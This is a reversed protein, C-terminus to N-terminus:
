IKELHRPEVYTVDEGLENFIYCRYAFESGVRQNSGEIIAFIELKNPYSFKDLGYSMLDDNTKVYISGGFEHIVDSYEHLWQTYVDTLKYLEGQKFKRNNM